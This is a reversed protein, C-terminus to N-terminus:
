TKNLVLSMTIGFFILNCEEPPSVYKQCEINWKHISYDEGGSYICNFDKNSFMCSLVKESHGRYNAIFSGNDVDWIKLKNFKM